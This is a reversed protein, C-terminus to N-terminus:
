RSKNRKLIEQLDSLPLRYLEQISSPTIKQQIIKKIYHQKAKELGERLFKSM